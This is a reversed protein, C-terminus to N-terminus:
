VVGILIWNTLNIIENISFGKFEERCVYYHQWPFVIIEDLEPSYLVVEM